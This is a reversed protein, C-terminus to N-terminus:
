KRRVVLLGGISLLLLLASAPANVKVNGPAVSLEGAFTGFSAEEGTYFGEIGIFDNYIAVDVYGLLLDSIVDLNLSFVIEFFGNLEGPGSVSDLYASAELFNFADLIDVGSFFFDQTEEGPLTLGSISLYEISDDAWFYETNFFPDANETLAAIELTASGTDYGLDFTQVILKANASFALSLSLVATTAAAVIFKKFIM